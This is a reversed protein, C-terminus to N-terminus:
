TPNTPLLIPLSDQDDYGMDMVQTHELYRLAILQVEGLAEGHTTITILEIHPSSGSACDLV